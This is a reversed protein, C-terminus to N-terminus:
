TRGYSVEYDNEELKRAELREILGNLEEISIEVMNPAHKVPEGRM